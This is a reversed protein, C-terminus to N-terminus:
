RQAFQIHIQDTIRVIVWFDCMVDKKTLDLSDM